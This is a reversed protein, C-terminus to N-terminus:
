WPCGEDADTLEVVMGPAYECLSELDIGLPTHYPYQAPPLKLNRLVGTPPEYEMYTLAKLNQGEVTLAELTVMAPGRQYYFLRGSGKEQTLKTPGKPDINTFKSDRVIVNKLPGSPKDVSADYGMMSLVGSATDGACHDIVVNQVTSWPAAGGQNRPTLVILYAGQGQSTGAGSLTSDYIAFGICNKLELACKIQWAETYWAANKTLTSRQITIDRPIQSEDPPDGGGVMVAQGAASLYCDDVLGGYPKTMEQTYVAQTDQAPQKIDDVYSRALIWSGAHFQVGRKTGTVPDGLLRLRDLTAFNARVSVIDTTPTTHRVDLGLVGVQEADITLGNLFRPALEDLTMRSTHWDEFTESVLTVPRRITLPASYVLTTSLRLVEDAGALAADLEAATTILSEPAPADDPLTAVLALAQATCAQSQELLQTIEAKTNM